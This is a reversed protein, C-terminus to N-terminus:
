LKRWLKGLEEVNWNGVTGINRANRKTAAKNRGKPFEALRLHARQRQVNFRQVNSRSRDEVIVKVGRM